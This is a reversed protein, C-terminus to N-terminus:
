LELYKTIKASMDDAQHLAVAEPTKPDVSSGWGLDVKGHHSLILHILSIRTNDSINLNNMKEKIICGGIFLHELMIGEQKIEIMETEYDYTEIKGLDHLIAGAILLDKNINEYINAITKCIEIVENTHVLM